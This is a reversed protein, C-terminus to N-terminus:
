LGEKSMGATSKLFQAPPKVLMLAAALIAEEPPMITHRIIRITSKGQCDVLLRLRLILNQRLQESFTFVCKDAPV